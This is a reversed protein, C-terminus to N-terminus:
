VYGRIGIVVGDKEGRGMIDFKGGGSRWIGMEDGKRGVNGASDRNRALKGLRFRSIIGSQSFPFGTHKSPAQILEFSPPLSFRKQYLTSLPTNPSFRDCTPPPPSPLYHVKWSCPTKDSCPFNKGPLPHRTSMFTLCLRRENM